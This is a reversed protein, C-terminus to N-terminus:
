YNFSEKYYKFANKLQTNNTLNHKSFLRQNKKFLLFENLIILCWKIKHLPLLLKLIEEQNHKIGMNTLFNKKNIAEFNKNNDPHSFLDCVLKLPDDLGSYEFDFYYLKKKSKIVNHISIDSPSIILYNNKYQKNISVDSLYNRINKIIKYKTPILHEIFFNNLNINNKRAEKFLNFKKNILKIHDNISFCSDIANFKYDKKFHNIKLIFISFQYINKYTFKNLSNGNIFTMLIYYKKLSYDILQATCDIDINNVHKYFAIERKIKKLSDFNSKDFLKLILKKKGDHIEYVRNNRGSRIVNYTIKNNFQNQKLIDFILLREKLKTM